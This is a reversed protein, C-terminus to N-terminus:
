QCGLIYSQGICELAHVTLWHWAVCGWLSSQAIGSSHWGALVRVKNLKQPIAGVACVKSLTVSIAEM